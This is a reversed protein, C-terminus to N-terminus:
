VQRISGTGIDSSEENCDVAAGVGESGSGLVVSFSFEDSGFMDVLSATITQILLVSILLQNM